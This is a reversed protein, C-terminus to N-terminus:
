TAEKRTLINKLKERSRNLRSNITGEPLNLIKSIEKISMDEYYFLITVTRFEVTLHQIADWLEHSELLDLNSSEDSVNDLPETIKRKRAIRYAENVLIKMVWPRFSELSRLKHFSAFSKCTTESVADEADTDNRLIGKAIRFLGPRYEKILSCYKEHPEKMPM